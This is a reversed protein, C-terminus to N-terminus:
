RAAIEQWFTAVYAKAPGINKLNEDFHFNFHGNMVVSRTVSSGVFDWVDAGGGGLSFVASPAYICGYFNGNGGFSVATCSPLGYFYFREPHGSANDIFATGSLDFTSGAMFIQLSANEPSIRVVLTSSSVNQTIKVRVNINTQVYVNGSLSSISYDGPSDFIYQYKVGDIYKNKDVAPLWSVDKPYDVPPFVVNFDTSAWGPQIGIRGGDVWGSSGVSGNLISYTNVGPGTRIHGKVQANGVNLSNIITLDTCVDGQDRTMEPHGIPYLGNISYNTSASNFSDTKINKGKLDITELAAMAVAFLPEKRTGVWVKRAIQIPVVTSGAQAFMPQYAGPSSYAYNWPTSALCTVTPAPPNNTIWVDYSSVDLTRHVHYINGNADWNEATAYNTWKGIDVFQGAYWNVMALGDEIGAESIAMVGNWTQSRYISRNQQQAMLLYSALTLGCIASLILSVLIVNAQETPRSACLTKM